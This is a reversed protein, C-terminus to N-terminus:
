SRNLQIRATSLGFLLDRMFLRWALERDKWADALMARLFVAPHRLPSEPTYITVPLDADANM